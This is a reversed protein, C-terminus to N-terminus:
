RDEEKVMVVSLEEPQGETNRLWDSIEDFIEPPTAILWQWHSNTPTPYPGRCTEVISKSKISCIQPTSHVRFAHNPLRAYQVPIYSRLIEVSPCDPLSHCM